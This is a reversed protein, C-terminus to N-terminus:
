REVRAALPHQFAEPDIAARSGVRSVVRALHALEDRAVLKEEVAVPGRRTHGDLLDVPKSKELDVALGVGRVSGAVDRGLQQQSM